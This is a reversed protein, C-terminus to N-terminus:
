AVEWGSECCLGDTESLYNNRWGDRTLQLMSRIESRVHVKKLSAINFLLTPFSPACVQINKYPADDNALVRLFTRLWIGAQEPTFLYDSSLLKSSPTDRTAYSIRLYGDENPEYIRLVDDHKESEDRVVRLMFVKSM